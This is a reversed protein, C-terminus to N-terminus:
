ICRERSEHLTKCGHPIKYCLEGQLLVSKEVLTKKGVMSFFAMTLTFFISQSCICDLFLKIHVRSGRCLWLSLPTVLCAATSIICVICVNEGFSCCSQVKLVFCITQKLSFITLQRTFPSNCSVPRKLISLLKSCNQHSSFLFCLLYLYGNEDPTGQTQITELASAPMYLVPTNPNILGWCSWSKQVEKFYAVHCSFLILRDIVPRVRLLCSPSRFTPNLLNFHSKVLLETNRWM